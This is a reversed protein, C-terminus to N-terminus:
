ETWIAILAYIIIGLIGTALMFIGLTGTVMGVNFLFHLFGNGLNEALCHASFAGAITLLSGVIVNTLLIKELLKM